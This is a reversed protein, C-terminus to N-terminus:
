PKWGSVVALQHYPIKKLDERPHYSIKNLREIMVPDRMQIAPIMKSLDGNFVDKYLVWVQSGRINMDVLQVLLLKPSDFLAPNLALYQAM